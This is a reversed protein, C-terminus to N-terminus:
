SATYGGDITMAAGTVFAAEDSLLYAVLAAIEDPSATRTTPNPAPPLPDGPRRGVAQPVALHRRKGQDDRQRVRQDVSELAASRTLGRVGHKTATCASMTPTGSVAAISANNVISGSAMVALEYKLCLFVSTLNVAIERDWDTVLVVKDAFRNTTSM